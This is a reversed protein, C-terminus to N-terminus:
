SSGCRCCHIQDVHDFQHNLMLEGIDTDLKQDLNVKLMLINTLLLVEVRTDTDTDFTVVRM